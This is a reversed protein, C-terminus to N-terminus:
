VAARCSIILLSLQCSCSGDIMSDQISAKKAACCQRCALVLSTLYSQSAKLFLVLPTCASIWRFSSDTNFERGLPQRMSREYVDKAGFPFPVSPTGYRAAKKDYRESIVVHAM